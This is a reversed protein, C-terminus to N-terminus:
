KQYLKSMFMVNDDDTPCTYVITGNSQDRLIRHGKILNTRLLNRAARKKNSTHFVEAYNSCPIQYIARRAGV